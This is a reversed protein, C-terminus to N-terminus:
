SHQLTLNSLGGIARVVCLCVFKCAVSIGAGAIIVVKKRYLSIENALQSLASNGRSSRRKAPRPSAISPANRSKRSVVKSTM